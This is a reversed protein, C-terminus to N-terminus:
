IFLGGVNKTLLAAVRSFCYVSFLLAAHPVRKQGEPRRKSAEKAGLDEEKWFFSGRLDRFGRMFIICIDVLITIGFICLKSSEIFSRIMISVAQSGGKLTRNNIVPDGLLWRSFM